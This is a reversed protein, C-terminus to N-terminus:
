APMAAEHLYFPYVMNYRTNTTPITYYLSILLLGEVADSQSIALDDLEIRPEHYLIADSILSTLHNVLEHSVEEFLYRSLDCGFGEQLTREGLSTGLLITLSQEIDEAGSAMEVASGGRAFAPPFSWGTGLFSPDDPPM